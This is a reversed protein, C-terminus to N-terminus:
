FPTYSWRRAKWEESPCGRPQSHDGGSLCDSGRPGGGRPCDSGRPRDGTPCRGSGGPAGSQFGLASRNPIGSDGGGRQATADRGLTLLSLAAMGLVQYRTM